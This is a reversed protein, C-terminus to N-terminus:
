AKRFLVVNAAPHELRWGFRAALWRMTALSYCCVHTPDRLYWWRPGLRADVLATMVALWGGPAVLAGMRALEAAPDHFHEVTETCTVFDYRRALPARDPAFLPDYVATPYGAETLMAALAPGPGCGYDLGRAGPELRAVLPAALRDLFARYGPDAPDNDHQEYVAREVEPSPRDAAAVFLLDCEGCRYYSRRHAAFALPAGATACLPCRLRSM